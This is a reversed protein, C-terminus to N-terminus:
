GIFEIPSALGPGLRIASFDYNEFHNPVIPIHLRGQCEGITIPIIDGLESPYTLIGSELHVVTYIKGM